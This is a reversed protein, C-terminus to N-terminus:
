RANFAAIERASLAAIERASLAAIERASLAAIERASLAAIERASLAAIEHNLREIRAENREGIRRERNRYRFLLRRELEERDSTDLDLLTQRTALVIRQRRHVRWAALGTQLLLVAILPPLLMLLLGWSGGPGPVHLSARVGQSVLAAALVFSGAVALEGRHRWSSALLEGAYSAPM